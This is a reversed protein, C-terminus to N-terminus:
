INKSHLHRHIINKSHLCKLGSTIDFAMQIKNEWQLSDFKENLYDRLNGENAYEIIELIMKSKNNWPFRQYKSSFIKKIDDEKIILTKKDILVKLAVKM